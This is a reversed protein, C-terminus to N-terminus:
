PPSAARLFILQNGIGLGDNIRPVSMFSPKTDFSKLARLAATM